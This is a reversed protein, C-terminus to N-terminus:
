HCLVDKLRLAQSMLNGEHHVALQYFHAYGALQERLRFVRTGLGENPSFDDVSFICVSRMTLTIQVGEKSQSWLALRPYMPRARRHNRGFLRVGLSTQHMRHRMGM